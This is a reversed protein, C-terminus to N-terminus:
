SSESVTSLLAFLLQTSGLGLDIKFDLELELESLTKGAPKVKTSEDEGSCAGDVDSGEDRELDGLLVRLVCTTEDVRLRAASALSGM